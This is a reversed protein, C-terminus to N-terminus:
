SKLLHHLQISLDNVASRAKIVQEYVPDNPPFHKQHMRGELRDLFHLERQVRKFLRETQWRELSMSNM